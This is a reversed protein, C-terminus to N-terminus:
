LDHVTVVYPVSRLRLPIKFDASYVLDVNRVRMAMLQALRRWLPETSAVLPRIEAGEAQAAAVLRRADIRAAVVTQVGHAGLRGVVRPIVEGAYRGMGTDDAGADEALLVARAM